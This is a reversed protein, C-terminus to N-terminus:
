IKKNKKSKNFLGHLFKVYLYDQHKEIKYKDIIERDVKKSKTRILESHKIITKTADNHNNIIYSIFDDTYCTDVIIIKLMCLKNQYKFRYQTLNNQALVEKLEKANNYYLYRQRNLEYKLLERRKIIDLIPTYSIKYEIDKLNSNLEEQLGEIKISLFTKEKEINNAVYDKEIINDKILENIKAQDVKIDLFNTLNNSKLYDIIDESYISKDVQKLKLSYYDVITTNNKKSVYEKIKNTLVTYEGITKKFDIYFNLLSIIKSNM